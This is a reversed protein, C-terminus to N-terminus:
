PLRIKPEPHVTQGELAAGLVVAPGTFGYGKALMDTFESM